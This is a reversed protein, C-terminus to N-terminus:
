LSIELALDLKKQTAGVSVSLLRVDNIIKLFYPPLGRASLERSLRLPGLTLGMATAGV